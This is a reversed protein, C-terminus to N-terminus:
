ALVWSTEAYKKDTYKRAITTVLKWIMKRLATLPKM